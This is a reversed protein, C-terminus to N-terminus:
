LGTTQLVPGPNAWELQLDRLRASLQARSDRQVRSQEVHALALQLLRRRPGHAEGTSVPSREGPDAELDFLEVILPSHLTLCLKYRGERVALVRAGFRNEPRFPNTCGAVSEAIVPDNWDEARQLHPWHSRGQFNAPASLGAADLLTPALHLLSFPSRQTANSSLGPARVLLPVRLLEESLRDPPHYRGGHDLFEEGHDATFAFVCDQWRQDRRLDGVLHGVQTDVWRIGADYLATIKGLHKRLGQASLDSRLWFSNLYRAEASSIRDGMLQLGPEAPYYPSHPDMFHLWLFFPRDSLSALWARAHEVLVDAAPFRRLQDFSSPQGAVRRQCYQFYLENYLAKTPTSLSAAQQIAHNVRTAFRPTAPQPAPDNPSAQLFDEFTDFGQDYGFRASLYPNGASFAATAYGADKLASALTPEGPALGLVDRGLALPFRSGLIAPFSYYTPAGAVVANHFVVSEATLSDLFPTTPRRYGLFGTHDARLSDVTILLISPTM